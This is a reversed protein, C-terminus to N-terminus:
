YEIEEESDADENKEETKEGEPKEEDGKAADPLVYGIFTGRAEDIVVYEIGLEDDLAEGEEEGEYDLIASLEDRIVDKNGEFWAISGDVIFGQIAEASNSELLYMVLALPFDEDYASGALDLIKVAETYHPPTTVDLSEIIPAYADDDSDTKVVEIAKVRVRDLTADEMDLDADYLAYYVVSDADDSLEVSIAEFEREVAGDTTLLVLTLLTKM